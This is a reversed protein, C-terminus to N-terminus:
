VVARLIANLTDAHDAQLGTLSQNTRLKEFAQMTTIGATFDATVIDTGALDADTIQDGGGSNYGNDFYENEHDAWKKGLLALQQWESIMQKIFAKKREGAM